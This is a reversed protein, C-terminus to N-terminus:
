YLAGRGSRPGEEDDPRGDLAGDLVVVLDAPAAPDPWLSRGRPASEMRAARALRTLVAANRARLGVASRLVMMRGILDMPRRDRRPAVTVAAPTMRGGRRRAELVSRAMARLVMRALRGNEELTELLADADLVFLVTGPEAVVDCPFPLETLVSLGGVAEQIPDGPLPEGGRTARLRGTLAVWHASAREGESVLQTRVPCVIERGAAALVALNRPSLEDFPHTRKLRLVREALVAPDVEAM